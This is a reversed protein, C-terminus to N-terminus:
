KLLNPNPVFKTQRGKKKPENQPQLKAMYLEYASPKKVQEVIPKQPGVRFKVSNNSVKSIDSYRVTMEVDCSSKDQSPDRAQSPQSKMRLDSDYGRRYSQPDSDNDYDDLPNREGISKKTDTRRKSSQERYFNNQLTARRSNEQKNADYFENQSVFENVQFINEYDKVEIKKYQEAPSQLPQQQGTFQQPSQNQVQIFIQQQPPQNPQQQFTILKQPPNGFSEDFILTQERNPQLLQEQKEDLTLTITNTNNNSTLKSKQRKEKLYQRKKELEQNKMEIEYLKALKAEKKQKIRERMYDERRKEFQNLPDFTRLAICMLILIFAASFISLAVYVFDWFGALVYDQLDQWEVNYVEYYDTSFNFTFNILSPKYANQDTPFAILFVSGGSSLPYQYAKGSTPNVSANIANRQDEGHLLYTTLNTSNHIVINIFVWSLLVKPNNILYQEVDVKLEWYCVDGATENLSNRLTITQNQQFLPRLVPGPTGCAKTKRPCFTYKM